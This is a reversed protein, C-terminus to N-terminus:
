QNNCKKKTCTNDPEQIDTKWLGHLNCYAYVALPTDKTIFIAEPRSGPKLYQIMCGKDTELCIFRIRHEETMPHEVKGIVVKLTSDDICNTVPIHHDHSGEESNPTLETMTRNCCSPTIGSDHIKIIINGCVRCKFFNIM